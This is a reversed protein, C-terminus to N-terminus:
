CETLRAKPKYTLCKIRAGTRVGTFEEQDSAKDYVKLQSILEVSLNELAAVVDSGFFKEGNVMVENLLTGYYTLRGSAKDYEMGPIVRVLEQLYAGDRLRYADANFITTDGRVEMEKLPATVVVEDLSISNMISDAAAIALSDAETLERVYGPEEKQAAGSVGAPWVFSLIVALAPIIRLFKM